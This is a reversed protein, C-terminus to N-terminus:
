GRLQTLHDATPSASYEENGRRQLWALLVGLMLVEAVALVEPLGPVTPHQLSLLSVGLEAGVLGLAQAWVERRMMAIWLATGLVAIPLGATGLTWWSLSLVLVAGIVLSPTGSTSVGYEAHPLRRRLLAPVAFVKVVLWLLALMLWASDTRGVYAAALVTALASIRYWGIASHSRRAIALLLLSLWAVLTLVVLTSATM